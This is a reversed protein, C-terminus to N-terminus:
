IGHNDRGTSPSYEFEGRYVIKASGELEVEKISKGGAKFRVTLIENSRTKVDIPPVLGRTLAAIISCAVAGTGCALTEAEVGREYSRMSIVGDSMLEAFDVNTGEPKFEDHQRISRGIELIGRSSISKRVDDPMENMFLVAHPAGTNISHVIFKGAQTDLQISRFGSPEKMKLIIGLGAYRAEYHDGLAEFLTWTRNRRSLYYYAACRGGNGCMGGSSGDANYYAMIFDGSRSPALILLGDAGVGYRRDCLAPALRSWDISSRGNLEDVLVFDNGAGTMKVFSIKQLPEAM